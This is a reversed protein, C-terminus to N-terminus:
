IIDLSNLQRKLWIHKERVRLDDSELLTQKTYEIIDRAYDKGDQKEIAKIRGLFNVFLREDYFEDKKVVQELHNQRLVYGMKLTNDIYDKMLKGNLIIRPYVAYKEEMEYARTLGPGYMTDKDIFFKGRAIGGRFFVKEKIMLEVQTTGAAFILASLSYRVESPIAFVVSDSMIRIKIQSCGKHIEKETKVKQIRETFNQIRQFIRLVEDHEKNLIEKKFALMDLFAVYCDTYSGTNWCDSGSSM